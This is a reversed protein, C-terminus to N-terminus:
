GASEEAPGLAIPLSGIAQRMGKETGGNAADWGIRYVVARTTEPEWRLLLEGVVAGGRGRIRIRSARTAGDDKPAEGASRQLLQSADPSLSVSTRRYRWDPLHAEPV